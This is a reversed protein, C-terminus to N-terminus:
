QRHEIGAAKRAGRLANRASALADATLCHTATRKKRANPHPLELVQAKAQRRDKTLQALQSLVVGKTFRGLSVIVVARSLALVQGFHFQVCAPIAKEVGAESRSKCHVIETLAYDVGSRVDSCEFLERALAHISSWFMVPRPSREGSGLRSYPFDRGISAATYYDAIEADSASSWPADDLPNISPNSSVFLLPANEIDGRWPEPVQWAKREDGHDPVNVVRSCPHSLNSRAVEINACRAIQIALDRADNSAPM